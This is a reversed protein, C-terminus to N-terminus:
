CNPNTNLNPNANHRYMEVNGTKLTIDIINLIIGIIHKHSVTFM